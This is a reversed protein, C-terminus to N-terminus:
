VLRCVGGVVGEFVFLGFVFWRFVVSTGSGAWGGAGDWRFGAGLGWCGVSMDPTLGSGQCSLGFSGDVEGGLGGGLGVKGVGQGM